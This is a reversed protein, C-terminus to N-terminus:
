TVLQCTNGFKVACACDFGQVPAVGARIFHQRLEEIWLYTIPPAIGIISRVFCANDKAPELKEIVPGNANM